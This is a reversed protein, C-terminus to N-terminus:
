QRAQEDDGGKEKLRVLEVSIHSRPNVGRGAPEIFGAEKLEYVIRIVHNIPLNLEECLRARSYTQRPHQRFFARARYTETERLTDTRAFAERQTDTPAIIKAACSKRAPSKHSGKNQVGAISKYTGQQTGQAAPSEKKETM